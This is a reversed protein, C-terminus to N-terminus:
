KEACAAQLRQSVITYYQTFKQIEMSLSADGHALDEDRLAVTRRQGHILQLAGDFKDFAIELRIQRVREIQAADRSGQEHLLGGAQVVIQVAILPRDTKIDRVDMGLRLDHMRQGLPLPQRQLAVLEIDALTQEGVHVGDPAVLLDVIKVGDVDVLPVPFLDDRPFVARDLIEFAGHAVDDARDALRVVRKADRERAQVGLKVAIHEEDGRLLQLIEVGVLRRLLAFVLDDTLVM